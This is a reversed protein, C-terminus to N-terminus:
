PFAKQTLMNEKQRRPLVKPVGIEESLEFGQPWALQLYLYQGINIQTSQMSQRGTWHKTHGVTTNLDLDHISSTLDTKSWECTQWWTDSQHWHQKKKTLDAM